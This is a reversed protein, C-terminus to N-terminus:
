DVERKLEKVIADVRIVDEDFIMDKYRRNSSRLIVKGEEFYIRKVVCRGTPLVAVVLKGPKIEGSEIVRKCILIDGDLIGEGSLSDGCVTVTGVQKFDRVWQPRLILQARPHEFLEVTTGAGVQGFHEVEITQRWRINRVESDDDILDETTSKSITSTDTHM